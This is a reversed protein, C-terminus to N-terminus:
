SINQTWMLPSGFKIGFKDPENPMYQTFACRSKTLFLQEDVTIEAGPKYSALSNQILRDWMESVLAFKDQSLRTRRTDKQEFRLYCMIERYRNRSTTSFFPLGWEKSWLDEMDIHMSNHVGRALLLAIFAKLEALSLEWGVQGCWRAEPSPNGVDLPPQVGPPRRPNFRLPHPVEDDPETEMKWRQQHPSRSRDRVVDGRSRGRGGRTSVEEDGGGADGTASVPCVPEKLKSVFQSFKVQKKFSGYFLCANDRFRQAEVKTVEVGAERIKIVLDKTTLGALAMVRILDRRGFLFLKQFYGTLHKTLHRTCCGIVNASAPDTMHM